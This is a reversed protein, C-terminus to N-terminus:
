KLNFIGCFLATSGFKNKLNFDAKNNILIKVVETNGNM